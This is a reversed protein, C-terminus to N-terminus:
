RLTPLFQLAAEKAADEGYFGYIAQAPDFDDLNVPTSYDTRDEDVVYWVCYVEDNLYAEWMKVEESFIDLDTDLYNRLLGVHRAFSPTFVLLVRDQVVRYQVGPLYLRVWRNLMDEGNRLRSNRAVWQFHERAVMISGAILQSESDQFTAGAAREGALWYAPCLADGTPFPCLIDLEIVAVVRPDDTECYSIRGSYHSWNM